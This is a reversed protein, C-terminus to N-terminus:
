EGEKSKIWESFFSKDDELYDVVKRCHDTFHEEVYKELIANIEDETLVSSIFSNIAILERNNDGIELATGVTEHEELCCECVGYLNTNDFRSGCVKCETAEIYEGGCKCSYDLHREGHSETVYGLESEYKLAGCKNCVLM